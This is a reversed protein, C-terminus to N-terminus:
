LCAVSEIADYVIVAVKMDTDFQVLHINQEFENTLRMKHGDQGFIRDVVLVFDPSDGEIHWVIFHSPTDVNEFIGVVLMGHFLKYTQEALRKGHFM